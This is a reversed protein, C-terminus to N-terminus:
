LCPVVLPPISSSSYLAHPLPLSSSLPSHISSLPLTQPLTSSLHSRNSLPCSVHSRTSLPSSLHFAAPLRCLPAAAGLACALVIKGWNKSVCYKSMEAAFSAAIKAIEGIRRM